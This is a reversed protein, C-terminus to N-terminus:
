KPLTFRCNSEDRLFHADLIEFSKRLTLVGGEKLWILFFYYYYCEQFLILFTTRQYM